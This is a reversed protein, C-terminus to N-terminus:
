PKDQLTYPFQKYSREFADATTKNGFRRFDAVVEELICDPILYLRRQDM